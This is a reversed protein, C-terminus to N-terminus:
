KIFSDPLMAIGLIFTIVCGWVRASTTLAPWATRPIAVFTLAVAFLGASVWVRERICVLELLFFFVVLAARVTLLLAKRLRSPNAARDEDVRGQV